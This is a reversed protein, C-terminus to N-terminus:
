CGRLSDWTCFTWWHKGKFRSNLLARWLSRKEDSWTLIANSIDGTPPGVELWCFWTDFNCLSDPVSAHTLQLFGSKFFFFIFDNMMRTKAQYTRYDNPMLTFSILFDNEPLPLFFEHLVPTNGSHSSKSGMQSESQSHTVPAIEQCSQIPSERGSPASSSPKEINKMEMEEHHIWLDPPRLDKQSGKRKAASHTARKRCVCLFKIKNKSNNSNIWHKPLLIWNLFLSCSIKCWIRDTKNSQRNPSCM